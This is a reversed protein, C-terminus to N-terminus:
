GEHWASLIEGMYITHPDGGSVGDFGNYFRSIVGEDMLKLDSEASFLRRCAFHAECGSIGFIGNELEVTDLKLESLKDADRGSVRGCYALADRFEGEAPVSIGFEKREEMLAHSYRSHRVMVLAVPKSWVRGTMCWGITMPNLAHPEGCVLFAGAALGSVLPKFLSEFPVQVLNDNKNM